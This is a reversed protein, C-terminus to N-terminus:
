VSKHIVQQDQSKTLNMKSKNTLKIREPNCLGEGKIKNYKNEAYKRLINIAGNLDANILKGVSSSFLGRKIRNGKYMDHKKVEENGLADCISTYSENIVEIKTTAEFANQMKSILKAYPIEYFKRNNKNGMNVKNKWGENYGIVILKKHSYLEKLKSVIENMKGKLKRLRMDNLLKMENDFYEKRKENIEKDRKSQTEAIKKNYYENICILHGGKLIRQKGSPDHITMLNVMGLDISAIESLKVSNEDKIETKEKDFKYHVKYINKAVKIIEIQKLKINKDKLISPKRILLLPTSSELEENFYEFWNHKIDKGYSLKIKDKNKIKKATNNNMNINDNKNEKNNEENNEKNKKKDIFDKITKGCFIISYFQEKIYKPKSAKKGLEKLAYYSKIAQYTKNMTNNIIDSSTKKFKITSYVLKGIINQESQLNNDEKDEDKNQDKYKLYNNLIDKKNTVTIFKIPKETKMVHKKFNDDFAVSIPKKNILGNKVDCYKYYYFGYLISYINEEYLFLLNPSSIDIKDVLICNAILNTYTNMFNVNDIDLKLNKIHQYLIDNNLVYKNFDKQFLDFYTKFKVDILNNIIDKDFTKNKVTDIFVEDYVKNKYLLFYKYCFLYHNFTNKSTKGLEDIIKSINNNFFHNMTITSKKIKTNKKKIKTKKKSTMIILILLM